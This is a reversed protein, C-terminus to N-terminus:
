TSLQTKINLSTVNDSFAELEITAKEAEARKQIIFNNLERYNSAGKRISMKDEDWYKPEIKVGLSIFKTKRDKIIRIFLPAFGNNKNIKDNRIIVKVSAM